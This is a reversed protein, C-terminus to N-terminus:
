KKECDKCLTTLWSSECNIESPCGCGECTRESIREAFTVYGRIERSGGSHYFRLGGFKEKIQLVRFRKVNDSDIEWMIASSLTDIINFWGDGICFGFCDFDSKTKYKQAYLRPYKETLIKVNEPSM